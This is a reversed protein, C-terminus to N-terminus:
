SIPEDDEFLPPSGARKRERAQLMDRPLAPPIVPEDGGNM